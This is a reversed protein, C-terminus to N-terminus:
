YSIVEYKIKPIGPFFEGEWGDSSGGDCKAELNAPCTHPGEAIQLYFNNVSGGLCVNSCKSFSFSPIPNSVVSSLVLALSFLLLTRKIEM